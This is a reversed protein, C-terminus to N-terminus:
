DVTYPRSILYRLNLSFALSALWMVVTRYCDPLPFGALSWVGQLGNGAALSFNVWRSMRSSFVLAALRRVAVGVRGGPLQGEEILSTLAIAQSCVPCRKHHRLWQYLCVPCFACRCPLVPTPAALQIDNLCIVCDVRRHVAPDFPECKLQQPGSDSSYRQLSVHLLFVLLAPLLFISLLPHQLVFDPPCVCQDDADVTSGNHLSYLSDASSTSAVTNTVDLLLRGLVSYVSHPSGVAALVLCQFLSCSTM